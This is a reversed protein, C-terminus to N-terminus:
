YFRSEGIKMAWLDAPAFGAAAGARFFLEPPEFAPENTLRVTGWHMGIVTKVGLDSAIAIAQEPTAHSAKMLEIPDYAGIGIMGIDFPGHHAITKFVEGYTTDGSFYLKKEKGEIAFGGWLMRNQDYTARASFHIAPLVTVKLADTTTSEQWNLETINRFGLPRLLVGNRLPTIVRIKDKNPLQRLTEKDLHDYHNHSILLVDIPPLNEVRIGPPSFRKPGFLWRFPSARQSLWPDTLITVGDLRILFAAHGLWTISNRDLNSSFTKLVEHEPVIFDKPIVVKERDFMRDFFFKRWAEPNEDRDIFPSGPPNSFIPLKKNKQAEFYFYLGVAALLLLIFAMLIKKM